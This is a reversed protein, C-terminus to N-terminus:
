NRELRNLFDGILERHKNDDLREQILRETAEITLRVVDQKLSERAKQTEYEINKNAKELMADAQQRAQERIEDALRKGEAIAKQMEARTEVEINKLREELRTRDVEAEVRHQEARKLDSDIQDRRADIAQLIPGFAFKALVWYVLLFCVIVTIVDVWAPNGAALAMSGGLFHLGQLSVM